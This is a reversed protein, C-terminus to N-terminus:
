ENQAPYLDSMPWDVGTGRKDREIIELLMINESLACCSGQRFSNADLQFDLNVASFFSRLHGNSLIHEVVHTILEYGKM